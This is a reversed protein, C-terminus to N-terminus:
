TFSVGSITTRKNQALDITGIKSELKERDEQVRTVGFDTIIKKYYGDISAGELSQNADKWISLAEILLTNDEKDGTM